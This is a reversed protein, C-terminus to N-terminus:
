VKQRAERERERRRKLKNKRRRHTHLISSDANTLAVGARKFHATRRASEFINTSMRTFTGYFFSYVFMCVYM